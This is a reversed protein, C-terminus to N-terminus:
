YTTWSGSYINPALAQSFTPQGRKMTYSRTRANYTLNWIIYSPVSATTTDNGVYDKVTKTYTVSDFWVGGNGNTISYNVSVSQDLSSAPTLEYTYRGVKQYIVYMEDGQLSDASLNLVPDNVFQVVADNTPRASNPTPDTNTLNGYFLTRYQRPPPPVEFHITVEGVGLVNGDRDYRRPNSELTINDGAIIQQVGTLPVYVVKKNVYPTNPDPEASLLWCRTGSFDIVNTSDPLPINEDYIYLRKLTELEIDCIGNQLVNFNLNIKDLSDGICEDLSIVQNPYRSCPM